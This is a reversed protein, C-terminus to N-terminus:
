TEVERRWMGSGGCGECGRGGCVPHPEEVFTSRAVYPGGLRGCEAELELATVLERLAQLPTPGHATLTAYGMSGRRSALYTEDFESWEVHFVWTVGKM